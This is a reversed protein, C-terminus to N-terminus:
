ALALNRCRGDEAAQMEELQKYHRQEEAIIAELQRRPEPEAIMTLLFEYFLVTDQEFIKSQVLMDSYAQIDQLKDQELSFTQDAVMEQLLRRGMKELELQEETLPRDSEIAAFWEEHRKEEDAMWTFIEAIAPDAAKEAAKRYAAEGNKEIQVAINRIDAITFM